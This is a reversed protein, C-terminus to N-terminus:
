SYGPSSILNNELSGTFKMKLLKYRFTNHLSFLVGKPERCFNSPVLPSKLPARPERSGRIELGPILPNIERHVSASDPSM